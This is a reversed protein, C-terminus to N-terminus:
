KTRPFTEREAGMGSVRADGSFVREGDGPLLHRVAGDGRHLSLDCGRPRQRYFLKDDSQDAGQRDGDIASHLCQPRLGFGTTDYLGIVFRPRGGMHIINDADIWAKMKARTESSVKAITYPSQTFIRKDGPGELYGQLRYQGPPLSGMDITAVTSGNAPPSLRNTSLVKGASDTVELVVHLQAMTTDAPPKVDIAVRAVQSQDSFMMGRYNPYLLYTELPPPLERRLSFNRFWSTGAVPGVTGALFSGVSGDAVEAHAKMVPSWDTTGVVAKTM